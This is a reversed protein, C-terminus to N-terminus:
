LYGGDGLVAIAVTYPDSDIEPVAYGGHYAGPKGLSMGTWPGDRYADQQDLRDFDGNEMFGDIVQGNWFISISLRYRGKAYPGRAVVVRPDGLVFSPLLLGEELVERVSYRLERLYSRRM